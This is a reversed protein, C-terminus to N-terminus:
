NSNAYHRRFFRVGRHYYWLTKLNPYVMRFEMMIQQNKWGDLVHWESMRGLPACIWGYFFSKGYEHVSCDNQSPDDVGSERARFYALAMPLVHQNRSEFLNGM